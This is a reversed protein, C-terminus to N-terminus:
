VFDQRSRTIEVGSSDAFILASPKQARVTVTPVNLELVCLRACATVFAELTKYESKEAFEIVRKCVTRYNVSGTVTDERGPRGLDAHLLLNILVTQKEEREWPNIGIICRVLLDTIHIRDEPHPNPGDEPDFTFSMNEDEPNLNDRHYRLFGNPFDLATRTVEVGASKAYLLAAPKDVKVTVKAVGCKTVLLQAVGSALAEVTKFQSHEAFKMVVNSCKGYNHSYKLLDTEGTHTVDTWLTLNIVVTQKKEREWREVGIIGRCTLNAVMVKDRAREVSRAMDGDFEM